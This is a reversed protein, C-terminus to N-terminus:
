EIEIKEFICNDALIQSKKYKDYTDVTWTLIHFGLKKLTKLTELELNNIDFAIFDVGIEAVEEVTLKIDNSIEELHSICINTENAGFIDYSKYKQISHITNEIINKFTDIKKEMNIM